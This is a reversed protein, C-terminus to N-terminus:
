PFFKCYSKISNFLKKFELQAMNNTKIEKIMAMLEKQTNFFEEETVERQNTLNFGGTNVSFDSAYNSDTSSDRPQSMIPKIGPKSMSRQHKLTRKKNFDYLNITNVPIEYPLKSNKRIPTHALQKGEKKQFKGKGFKFNQQLNETLKDHMTGMTITDDESSKHKRRPNKQGIWVPSSLWFAMEIYTKIM